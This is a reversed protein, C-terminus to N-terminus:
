VCVCVCVYVCECLCASMREYVCEHECVGLGGTVCM